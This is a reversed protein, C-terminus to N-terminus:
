QYSNKGNLAVNQVNISSCQNMDYDDEISMVMAKGGVYGTAARAAGLPGDFGFGIVTACTGFVGALVKDGLTAFIEPEIATNCRPCEKIYKNTDM